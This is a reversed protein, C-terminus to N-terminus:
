VFSLLPIVSKRHLKNDIFMRSLYCVYLLNELRQTFCLLATQWLLIQRVCEQLPYSFLKEIVADGRSQKCPEGDLDEGLPMGDLEECKSQKSAGTDVMPMGDFDPDTLPM